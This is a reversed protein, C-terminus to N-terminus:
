SEQRCEEAEQFLDTFEQRPHELLFFDLNLVHPERTERKEGM